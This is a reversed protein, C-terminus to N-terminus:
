GLRPVRGARLEVAFQETSNSLREFWNDEDPYRRHIARRERETLGGWVGFTAHSNLADALCELRVPCSFCVNRAQRQAAGRVFLSDPDMTACAAHVAWTQEEYALSM